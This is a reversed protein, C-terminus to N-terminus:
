PGCPDGALVAVSGASASRARLECNMRVSQLVPTTTTPGHQHKPARSALAWSAMPGEVSACPAHRRAVELPRPRARGHVCHAYRGPTKVVRAQGSNRPVYWKIAKSIALRHYIIPAVLVASLPRPRVEYPLGWCNRRAVPLAALLFFVSGAAQKKAGCFPWRPDLGPWKRKGAARCSALLYRKQPRKLEPSPAAPM